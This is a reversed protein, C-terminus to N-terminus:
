KKDGNVLGWTAVADAYEPGYVRDIAQRMARVGAGTGGPHGHLAGGVNATWDDHGVVRRVMEVNGPNMGCSLASVINKSRLTEIWSLVDENKDGGYGGIMGNHWQDVGLLEFLQCMAKWDIGFAHSANTIIKEGSKQGHIFIPLDLERISKYVGWGSWFNIHIGNGGYSAVQAARKLAFAPDANICVCYITKSGVKHIYDMIKPVRDVIRCHNPNSMIEDEKIFNIGNDVMLKVQDLLRDPSMGTKPKVIGGLFPKGQVGTLTRMGSLGYRPKLCKSTISTPFQFNKIRCKTISGIDTQGGHVMCLLHSIGDTEINFNAVPFAIKVVGHTKGELAEKSHLIKCCYKEFMEDTEFENRVEPNGVSQGVALQWAADRLSKKSELEYTVIIYDEVEIGISQIADAEDVVDPRFIDTKILPEGKISKSQLVQM